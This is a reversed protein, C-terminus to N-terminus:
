TTSTLVRPKTTSFARHILTDRAGLRLRRRARLAPAREKRSGGKANKRMQYQLTKGHLEWHASEGWLRKKSWPFYGRFPPDQDGEMYNVGAIENMAIIRRKLMLYQTANWLVIFFAVAAAATSIVPMYVDRVRAFTGGEDELWPTRVVSMMISMFLLLIALDNASFSQKYKSAPYMSPLLFVLALAISSTNEIYASGEINKVSMNFFNLMLMLILPLYIQAVKKM